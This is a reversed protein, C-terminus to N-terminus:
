IYHRGLQLLVSYIGRFAGCESWFFRSTGVDYLGGLPWMKYPAESSAFDLQIVFKFMRGFNAVIRSLWSRGVHDVVIRRESYHILRM